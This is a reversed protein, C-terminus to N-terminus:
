MRMTSTLPEFGSHEVVFSRSTDLPKKKSEAYHMWLKASDTIPIGPLILQDEGIANPKTYAFVCITSHSWNSQYLVTFNAVKGLPLLFPCAM